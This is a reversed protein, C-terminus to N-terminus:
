MPVTGSNTEGALGYSSFGGHSVEQVLRRHIHLFGERKKVSHYHEFELAKPIYKRPEIGRKERRRADRGQGAQTHKDPRQTRCYQVEPGGEQIVIIDSWDFKNIRKMLSFFPQQAFQQLITKDRCVFAVEDGVTSESWHPYAVRIARLDHRCLFGHLIQHCRSALLFVDSSPDCFQVLFAHRVNM